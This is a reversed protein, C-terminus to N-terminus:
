SNKQWLGLDYFTTPIDLVDDKMFLYDRWMYGDQYASFLEETTDYKKIYFTGGTCEMVYMNRDEDMFFLMRHNM